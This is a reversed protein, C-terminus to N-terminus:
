PNNECNGVTGLNKGPLSVFFTNWGNRSVAWIKGRHKEVIQQAIALGLGYSHNMSRAQDVRYFRKFINKCEEQSLEAGPSSVELLCQNHNQWTLRLHVCGGPISYKQGNDLLIEVVQRLHQGSGQVCIGPEVQSELALGQEFYVPEFPLVADSILKSYDVTTMMTKIQGNDVRALDLLNEVLGRMQRSMTLISNAFRSRDREGYEPAQLLEANTLIVTLPTKLEHSADAVFQRQQQWAKEVPKVAWFALLISIGLFILFAATGILLCNRLMRSLTQQETSIDTFAYQQGFPAELCIFRLSYDRLVGTQEGSAMAANLIKRLSEFDTLDYYGDGEAIVQGQMLHLTFCPQSKVDGPRGPRKPGAAASQLAALSATELGVRTSHYQLGLIMVLMITVIVMNICVFKIRLRNIM